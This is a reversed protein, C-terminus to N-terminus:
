LGGAALRRLGGAEGSSLLHVPHGTFQVWAAVPQGQGNRFVVVPAQRDIDGNFDVGMRDRDEERM